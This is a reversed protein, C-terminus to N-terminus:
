SFPYLTFALRVTFIYTKLYEFSPMRELFYRPIGQCQAIWVKKKPRGRRQHHPQQKWISWWTIMVLSSTKCFLRISMMIVQTLFLYNRNFHMWIFCFLQKFKWNTMNLFSVGISGFHFYIGKRRLFSFSFFVFKWHYTNWLM